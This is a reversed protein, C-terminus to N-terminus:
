PIIKRRTQNKCAAPPRGPARHLVHRMLDVTFREYELGASQLGQALGAIPSLDPNPNVELIYPKGKPGVRFDVRAYDRCGLLRFAQRALEQLREALPPSVKAPYQAPTMEYNRSGPTWKGDYTVIPWANPNPDLFLVESVPLTRLNPTEVLAVNFERGRIFREVLVAPGYNQLLRKVRQELPRQGTVVSGQDLGVSGDEQAPKVIVPWQLPCAPVPLDEIVLFEPTPLGAGQLLHKTLHKSRALCLAPSPSGTFPIGLWELVGAVQAETGSRTALGEFLNFVVDPRRTQLGHVLAQPEAGVGLRSVKFGAADLARAVAAVTRLVENESVADAHDPPLVPQNYLIVVRTPAM